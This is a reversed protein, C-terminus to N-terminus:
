YRLISSMLDAAVACDISFEGEEFDLEFHKEAEWSKVLLKSQTKERIKSLLHLNICYQLTDM